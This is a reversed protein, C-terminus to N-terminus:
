VPDSDPQWLLQSFPPRLFRMEPPVWNPVASYLSTGLAHVEWIVFSVGIDGSEYRDQLVATTSHIIFRLAQEEYGRPM